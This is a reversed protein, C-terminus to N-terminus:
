ASPRQLIKRPPHKEESMARLGSYLGSAALGAIVGQQISAFFAADSWGVGGAAYNLLALLIGCAISTLPAFADPLGAHKCASVLPLILAYVAENV